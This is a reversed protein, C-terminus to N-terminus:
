GPDSKSEEPIRAARCGALLTIGAAPAIQALLRGYAEAVHLEVPWNTMLFLSSYSLLALLATLAV